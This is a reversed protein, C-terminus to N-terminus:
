SSFAVVVSLLCINMIIFFKPDAKFRKLTKVIVVGALFYAPLAQISTLHWLDNPFYYFVYEKFIVLSSINLFVELIIAEVSFLLILVNPSIFCKTNLTDHLLYLHFGYMGWIVISYLSTYAHHIPLVRYEWLPTKFLLYYLSGCFIEGYVGILAVSTMYVLLTKVEV